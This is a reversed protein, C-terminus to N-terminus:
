PKADKYIYLGHPGSDDGPLVHLCSFFCSREDAIIGRLKFIGEATTFWAAPNASWFPPLKVARKQQPVDKKNKISPKETLPMM